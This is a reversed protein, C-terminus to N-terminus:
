AELADIETEKDNILAQLAQLAAEHGTADADRDAQANRMQAQLSALDSAKRMRILAARFLEADGDFVDVVIQGVIEATTAM